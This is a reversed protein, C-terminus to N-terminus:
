SVVRSVRASVQVPPYDTLVMSGGVVVPEHNDLGFRELYEDRVCGTSLYLDMAEVIADEADESLVPTPQPRSNPLNLIFETM